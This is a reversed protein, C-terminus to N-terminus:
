VEILAATTIVTCIPVIGALSPSLPRRPARCPKAFCFGAGHLRRLRRCPTKTRSRRVLVRAGRGRPRDGAYGSFRSDASDASLRRKSSHPLFRPSQFGGSLICKVNLSRIRIARDSKEHLIAFFHLSLRQSRGVDHRYAVHKTRCQGLDRRLERLAFLRQLVAQERM